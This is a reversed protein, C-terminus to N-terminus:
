KGVTAMVAKQSINLLMDAGNMGFVLGACYDGGDYQPGLVTMLGSVDKLFMEVVDFMMKMQPNKGAALKAVPLGNRITKIVENEDKKSPPKCGYQKMMKPQGRIFIGTEFGSIFQKGMKPTANILGFLALLFLVFRM